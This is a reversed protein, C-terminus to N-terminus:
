FGGGGGGGGGAQSTMLSAEPNGQRFQWSFSFNGLSSPMMKGGSSPQSTPFKANDSGLNMTTSGQGVGIQGGSQLVGQAGGLAETAKGSVKDLSNYLADIKQQLQGVATTLDRVNSLMKNNAMSIGKGSM